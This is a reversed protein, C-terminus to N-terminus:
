IMLDYNLYYHSVRQKALKAANLSKIQGAGRMVAGTSQVSVSSMRSREQEMALKGPSVLDPVSRSQTLTPYIGSTTATATQTLAKKQQEKQRQSATPVHIKVPMPKPKTFEKRPQPPPMPAAAVHSQRHEQQAISPRAINDPQTPQSPVESQSFYTSDRKSDNDDDDDYHITFNESPQIDLMPEDDLDDTLKPYLNTQPQTPPPPPVDHSPSQIIARANRIVEVAYAAANKFSMASPSLISKSVVPSKLQAIQSPNKEVPAVQPVSKITEHQANETTAMEVETKSAVVENVHRAPEDKSLNSLQTTLSAYDKKPIWEDEEDEVQPERGEKATRIPAPTEIEMSKEEHDEDRLAQGPTSKNKLSNLADFIRQSETTFKTKLRQEGMQLETDIITITDDKEKKKTQNELGNAEKSVITQPIESSTSTAPETASKAESVKVVPESPQSQQSQIMQGFFTKRNPIISTRGGISELLSTRQSKRVGFSKKMNLPARTPLSPLQMQHEPPSTAVPVQTEIVGQEPHAVTESITETHAHAHSSQLDDQAISTLATVYSDSRDSPRPTASTNTTRNQLPVNEKDSGELDLDENQIPGSKAALPSELLETQQSLANSKMQLANPRPTKLVTVVEDDDEEEEVIENLPKPPNNSIAVTSEHDSTISLTETSLDSSDIGMSLHSDEESDHHVILSGRQETRGATRPEISSVGDIGTTSQGSSTGTRISEATV